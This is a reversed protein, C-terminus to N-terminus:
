HGFRKIEKVPDDHCPIKGPLPGAIPIEAGEKAFIPLRSLPANVVYCQGSAYTEGTEFDFWRAGDNLQPLYVKRTTEGETIVPAILLWAGLMFDDCDELCNEDSPFDYFTPRIIPEHYHHAREFLSWLYPMLAYRLSIAKIIEDKVEPHMWPLNSIGGAKWSNMVMRPNLCCAQVWRLFLEPGPLPGFFGGVDHGVNFIGSLSMQLGTRINWKLTRWSTTNDGSWTQAYRQIGPSGGRTVTFVSEQNQTYSAQAEFTARTMLLGHLPRTRHIPQPTGWCQSVADGDQIAYENNDNWGSHIGYDLVQSKFQSQWWDLAIPNTFDLHAGQGDWFPEIVTKNHSDRLLAHAQELSAFAPHDDLLCPKINAVLHMGHAQFKRNLSKPDPFKDNNWTFVYRRKGKSSYGSGYHFASVPIKYEQTKEIFASLQNQADPADALGMATQAFGLSWKPPLHTRGILKVFQSIVESPTNGFIVYYDLDGDDIDVYRYFDHYNDHECGFDFTCTSLTDYYLGTWLGHANRTLVFPWHKYLPDGYEPDYGLSDLGMSRLRRGSLNLPGTKDGLGFFKDADNRQLYHRTAGTRNEILYASTVRDSMIQPGLSEDSNVKYWDIRFPNNHVEALVKSSKIHWGAETQTHNLEVEDFGSWDGRNRGNWDVDSDGNSTVAWTRPERFGTAPILCVRIISTTLFRLEFRSSDELITHAGLPTKSWAKAKLPKM